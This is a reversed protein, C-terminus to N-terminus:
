RFIREWNNFLEVPTSLIWRIGEVPIVLAEAIDELSRGEEFYLLRASEVINRMCRLHEELETALRKTEAAPQKMEGKQKSNWFLEIPTTVMWEVESEQKNCLRAIEAVSLKGTYYMHHFIEAEACTAGRYFTSLTEIHREMLEDGDEEGFSAEEDIPFEDDYLDDPDGMFLVGGKELPSDSDFSSHSDLPSDDEDQIPEEFPPEDPFDEEILADVEADDDIPFDDDAVFAPATEGLYSSILSEVEKRIKPREASAAAYDYLNAVAVAIDPHNNSGCLFQETEGIKMWVEYLRDVRQLTKNADQLQVVCLITNDKLQV